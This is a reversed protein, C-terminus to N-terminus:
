LETDFALIRERPDGPFLASCDIEGAPTLGNRHTLETLYDDSPYYFILKAPRPFEACSALIRALASRLIPVSFPNFFYFRDTDAPPAYKEANAELFVARAGGTVSLRNEEAQALIDPNFDIGISRCGTARSLFLGVRGKGCGYDVLLNDPGIWGSEALLELVSYPTPEYPLHHADERAADRGATRIRLKRDWDRERDKM